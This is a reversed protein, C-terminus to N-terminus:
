YLKVSFTYLYWTNSISKLNFVYDVIFDLTKVAPRLNLLLPNAKKTSRSFYFVKSKDHEIALGFENFFFSIISYSSYFITNSKKYSKEQSVFLKDNVFSLFSISIPVFLNNTRKEFIHFISTIFIISFFQFSFQGKVSV